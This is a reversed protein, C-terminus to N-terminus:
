KQLYRKEVMVNTDENEIECLISLQNRYCKGYLRTSFGERGINTINLGIKNMNQVKIM